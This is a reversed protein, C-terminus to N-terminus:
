SDRLWQLDWRGEIRLDETRRHSALFLQGMVSTADRVVGYMRWHWDEDQHDITLVVEEKNNLKIDGYM